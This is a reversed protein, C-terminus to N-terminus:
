GSAGRRQAASRAPAEESLGFDWMVYDPIALDGAGQPDEADRIVRLEDRSVPKNEAWGGKEEMEWMGKGELTGREV